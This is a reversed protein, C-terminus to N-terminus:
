RAPPPPGRLVSWTVAWGAATTAADSTFRVLIVGTASSINGSWALGAGSREVVLSAADGLSALPASRNAARWISLLDFGEETSGALTVRLTCPFKKCGASADIAITCNESRLPLHAHRLKHDTM